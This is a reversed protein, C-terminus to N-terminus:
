RGKLQEMAVKRYPNDRSIQRHPSEILIGCRGREVQMLGTGSQLFLDRHELARPAARSPIAVYVQNSWTGHFLSQRLAGLWDKVKLEVTVLM